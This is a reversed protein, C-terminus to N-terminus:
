LLRCVLHDPSQLESTHEESRKAVPQERAAAAAPVDGFQLKEEAAAADEDRDVAVKSRDGLRGNHPYLFACAQVPVADGARLRDCIPLATTYPCRSHLPPHRTN